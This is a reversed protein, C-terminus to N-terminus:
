LGNRQAGTESAKKRGTFMALILNERHRWSAYLVGAIHIAILVILGDSLILHIEQLPRFDRYAPSDIMWGTVGLAILVGLLAVIMAGGAPNHGITRAERMRLMAWLYRALRLPTPVFSGFRAYGTNAFGWVIRAAILALVLYGAVRHAELLGGHTFYAALTALVIIWHAARVFADWVRMVM